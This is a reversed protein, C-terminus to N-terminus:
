KGAARLKANLKGYIHERFWPENSAAAAEGIPFCRVGSNEDPKATLTDGTDAELLYTVNLHLHSPVYQGHKIHGDVTLM